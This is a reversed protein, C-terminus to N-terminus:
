NPRVPALLLASLVLSSGAFYFCNNYNGTYEAIMGSIPLGLLSAVGHFVMLIGLANTLKEIGFIEVLIIAKLAPYAALYFSIVYVITYIYM